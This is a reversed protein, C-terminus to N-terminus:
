IDAMSILMVFITDTKLIDLLVSEYYSYQYQCITLATSIKEFIIGEIALKQRYVM